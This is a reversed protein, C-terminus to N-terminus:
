MVYCLGYFCFSLVPLSLSAQVEGVRLLFLCAAPCMCSPLPLHSLIKKSSPMRWVGGNKPVRLSAKM